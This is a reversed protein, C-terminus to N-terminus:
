NVFATRPGLDVLYNPGNPYQYAVYFVDGTAYTIASALGVGSAATLVLTTLVVLLRTSFGRARHPKM